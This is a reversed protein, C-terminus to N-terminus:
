ESTMGKYATERCIPVCKASHGNIADMIKPRLRIMCCCTYIYLSEKTRKPPIMKAIRDILEKYIPHNRKAGEGSLKGIWEKYEEFANKAQKLSYEEQQPREEEM